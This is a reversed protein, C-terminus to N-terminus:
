WPPVEALKETSTPLEAKRVRPMFTVQGAEGLSARVPMLASYVLGGDRSAVEAGTLSSFMVPSLKAWILERDERAPAMLLPLTPNPAEARDGSLAGTNAPPVVPSPPTAKAGEAEGGGEVM